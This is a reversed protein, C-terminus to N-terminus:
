ELRLHFSISAVDYTLDSGVSIFDPRLKAYSEITDEQMNGSIEIHTKGRLFFMAEEAKEVTFNDLMIIDPNFPLSALAEKLSGAEIEIKLMPLFNTKRVHELAKEIGGLAKIHNNKLMILDSLSNRHNCGGGCQVAYKVFSRYGPLIKRTDLLSVGYANTIASFRKTKTTIGSLYSLLNLVIREMQLISQTKGEIHAVIDGPQVADGDHFYSQIKLTPDLFHFFPRLLFEGCLFGEQQARIFGKSLHDEPIFSSAPDGYPQDEELFSAITRTFRQPKM